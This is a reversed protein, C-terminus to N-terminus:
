AKIVSCERHIALLCVLLGCATDLMVKPSLDGDHSPRTAAYPLCCSALQCPESRTNDYGSATEFAEFGNGGLDLCRSTM